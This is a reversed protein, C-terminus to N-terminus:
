IDGEILPHQRWNAQLVSNRWKWVSDAHLWKGAFVFQRVQKTGNDSLKKLLEGVEM